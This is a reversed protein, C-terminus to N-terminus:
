GAFSLAIRHEMALRTGEFMALWATREDEALETSDGEYLPKFDNIAAAMKDTLDGDAMPIGLDGALLRLERLFHPLSGIWIRIASGGIREHYATAFPPFFDIPVFAVRFPNDRILALNPSERAETGLSAIKVFVRSSHHDLQSRGFLHDSYVDPLEVPDAYLPLGHESLARNIADLFASASDQAEDIFSHRIGVFLGTSMGCEAVRV